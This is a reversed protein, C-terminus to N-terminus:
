CVRLRNVWEPDHRAHEPVTPAVAYLWVTQGAMHPCQWLSAARASMTKLIPRRNYRISM